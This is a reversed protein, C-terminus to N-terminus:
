AEDGENRTRGGWRTLGGSEFGDNFIQLPRSCAPLTAMEEFRTWGAPLTDGPRLVVGCQAWTWGQPCLQVACVICPCAADKPVRRAVTLPVGAPWLVPGDDGIWGWYQPRWFYLAVDATTATPAVFTLSCTDVQSVLPDPISWSYSVPQLASGALLAALLLSTM